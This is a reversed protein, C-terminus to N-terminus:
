SDSDATTAGGGKFKRNSSQRIVELVGGAAGIAKAERDPDVVACVRNLVVTTLEHVFEDHSVYHASESGVTGPGAASTPSMGGAALAVGSGAGAPVPFQEAETLASSGAGAGDDEVEVDDGASTARQKRTRRTGALKHQNGVRIETIMGLAELFEVFDMKTHSDTAM